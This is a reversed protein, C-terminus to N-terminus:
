GRFDVTLDREWRATRGLGPGERCIEEKLLDYWYQAYEHQPYLRLVQQFCSLAEQYHFCRVLCFGRCMWAERDRSDIRAAESFSDSAEQYYGMVGLVYGRRKWAEVWEPDLRIAREFCRYAEDLRAERM